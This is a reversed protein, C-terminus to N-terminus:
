PKLVGVGPLRLSFDLPNVGFSLGLLNFELGEEPSVLVGAVGWLSLQGGSGSPATGVITTDGIYDKGIATPPLNVKLAPVRRTVFAVFTNSNPGPWTRYSDPWPYDAVAKNIDKIAQTAADGRVDALLDPKAGYWYRDPGSNHIQLANGGHFVHWGMVEYTTYEPAGEPKVSIWTHVAFVGRWSFARAAYVQVVAEHTSRAPPALGSSQRSATQWDAKIRSDEGAAMALPGLLLLTIFILFRRFWKMAGYALM